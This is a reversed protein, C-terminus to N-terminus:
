AMEKSTQSRNSNVGLLRKHGHKQHQLQTILWGSYYLDGQPSGPELKESGCLEINNVMNAESQAIVMGGILATLAFPAGGRGTRKKPM